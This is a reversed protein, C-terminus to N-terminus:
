KEQRPDNLVTYGRRAAVDLRQEMAETSDHHTIIVDEDINAFCMDVWKNGLYNTSSVLVEITGRARDLKVIHETM